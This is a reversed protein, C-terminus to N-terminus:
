RCTRYMSALEAGTLYKMERTLGGRRNIWNKVNPPYVAMLLQTGGRNTAIRGNEGHHWAAHFGLRARRTVCIRERPIVGLIMTCASLCPGDIIVQQGSDRIAALQELYPGIQGGNDGTIRVAASASPVSLATLVAGFLLAALRM